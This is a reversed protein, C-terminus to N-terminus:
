FCKSSSFFSLTSHLSYCKRLDGQINGRSSTYDAPGGARRTEGACIKQRLSNAKDAASPKMHGTITIAAYLPHIVSHAPWACPVVLSIAHHGVSCKGWLMHASSLLQQSHLVPLSHTSLARLKGWSVVGDFSKVWKTRHERLKTELPPIRRLRSRDVYTRLLIEQLFYRVPFMWDEGNERWNFARYRRFVSMMRCAKPFTWHFQIFSLTFSVTNLMVSNM